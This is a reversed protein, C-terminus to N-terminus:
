YHNYYECWYVNWRIIAGTYMDDLPGFIFVFFSLKSLTDLVTPSYDRVVAEGWKPQVLTSFCHFDLYWYSLLNVFLTLPAYIWWFACILWYDISVLPFFYRRLFCVISFICLLEFSVHSHWMTQTLGYPVFTCYLCFGSDKLKWGIELFCVDATCTM